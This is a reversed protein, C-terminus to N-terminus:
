VLEPHSQSTRTIEVRMKSCGIWYNQWFCEDSMVWREISLPKQSSAFGSPRIAAPEQVRPFLSSFSFHRRSSASRCCNKWRQVNVSSLIDSFLGVNGIRTKASAKIIHDNSFRPSLLGRSNMNGDELRSKLLSNRTILQSGKIIKQEKTESFSM